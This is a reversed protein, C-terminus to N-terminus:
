EENNEDSAYLKIDRYEAKGNLAYFSLKVNEDDSHDMSLTMSRGDDTVFDIMDDKIVLDIGTEKDFSVNTLTDRGTGYLMLMYSRTFKATKASFDFEIRYEYKGKFVSIGTKVMSKEPMLLAKLRIGTKQLPLDFIKRTDFADLSIKQKEFVLSYAPLVEEPMKVGLTGDPRQILEHMIINGAYPINIPYEAKHGPLFGASIYRNKFRATKPVHIQLSDFADNIPCIWPGFPHESMRYHASGTISFVLYYRGNWEFYDSCEPQGDYGPILFPDLQTCETLDSSTLHALCGNYKEETVLSTTVLMHYLGDAGLFVKPDRASVPEYPYELSFYKESKTFSVGDDSVAFSLRAKSGDSMRVSYFAYIKDDKKILSGTCISGENQDTIGLALPHLTWNILDKSSVQAWQHAGLGKKSGHSRRDLLFYLRYVNEHDFPMCDGAGTNHGPVCFGQFSKKLKEDEKIYEDSRYSFDINKISESTCIKWIGEVPYGLLWDEDALVGDVYLRFSFGLWCIKINKGFVPSTLLFDFHPDKGFRETEAQWLTNIKASLFCGDKEFTLVNENGSLITLLRGDSDKEVEFSLIWPDNKNFFTKTDEIKM